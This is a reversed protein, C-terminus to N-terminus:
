NRRCRARWKISVWEVIVGVLAWFITGILMLNFLRFLVDQASTAVSQGNLALRILIGPFNLVLVITAVGDPGHVTQGGMGTPQIPCSLVYGYLIVNMAAVVSGTFCFARAYPKLTKLM